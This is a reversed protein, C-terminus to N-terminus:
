CSRAVDERRKATALDIADSVTEIPTSAARLLAAPAGLAGRSGAAPLAPWFARTASASSSRRARALAVGTFFVHSTM